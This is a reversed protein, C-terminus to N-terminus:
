RDTDSIIRTGLSIKLKTNLGRIMYQHDHGEIHYRDTQSQM